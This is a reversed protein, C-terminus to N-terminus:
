FVTKIFPSAHLLQFVYQKPTIPANRAGTPEAHRSCLELNTLRGHSAGNLLRDEQSAQLNATKNQSTLGLKRRKNRGKPPM